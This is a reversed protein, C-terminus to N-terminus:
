MHYMCSIALAVNAVLESVVFLIVIWLRYRSNFGPMYRLQGKGFTFGIGYFMNYLIKVFRRVLIFCKRLTISGLSARMGDWNYLMFQDFNNIVLDYCFAWIFFAKADTSNIRKYIMLGSLYILMCCAMFYPDRHFLSDSMTETLVRTGFMCVLHYQKFYIGIIVQTLRFCFILGGLIVLRHFAKRYHCHWTDLLYSIQSKLYPWSLPSFYAVYQRFTLKENMSTVCHFDKDASFYLNM